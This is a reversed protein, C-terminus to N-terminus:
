ETTAERLQHIHKVWPMGSRTWFQAQPTLEARQNITGVRLTVSRPTGEIEPTGYISTGCHPCFAQVRRNGSDATKVYTKPIGRLLRFSGPESPVIVRFASGSLKQCDTCHCVEVKAPDVEAEYALFGCHCAGDIKM